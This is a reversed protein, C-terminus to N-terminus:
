MEIHPALSGFDPSKFFKLIAFYAQLAPNDGVICVDTTKAAATGWCKILPMKPILSKPFVFSVYYRPPVASDPSYVAFTKGSVTVDSKGWNKPVKVQPDEPDPKWNKIKALIFAQASNVSPIAVAKEYLKVPDQIGHHTAYYIGGGFLAVLVIAAIIRQM